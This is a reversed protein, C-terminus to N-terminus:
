LLHLIIRLSVVTIIKSFASCCICVFEIIIHFYPFLLVEKRLLEINMTEIWKPAPFWTKMILDNDYKLSHMITINHFRHFLIHIVDHEDNFYSADLIWSIFWIMDIRNVKEIKRKALVCVDNSKFYSYYWIKPLNRPFKIQM